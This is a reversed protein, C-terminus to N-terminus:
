LITTRTDLVIQGTAALWDGAHDPAIKMLGFNNEGMAGATDSDTFIVYGGDGTQLGYHVHGGNDTGHGKHWQM